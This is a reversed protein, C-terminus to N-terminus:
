SHAVPLSNVGFILRFLDPPVILTESEPPDNTIDPTELVTQAIKILEVHLKRIRFPSRGPFAAL